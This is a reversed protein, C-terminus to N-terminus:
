KTPPLGAHFGRLGENGQLCAGLAEEMHECSMLPQARIRIAEASFFHEYSPTTQTRRAGTFTHKQFAHASTTLAAVTTQLPLEVEFEREQDREQAWPNGEKTRPLPWDTTIGM